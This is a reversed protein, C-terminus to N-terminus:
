PKSKKKAKLPNTEKRLLETKLLAENVTPAKGKVRDVKRNVGERRFIIDAQAAQTTM